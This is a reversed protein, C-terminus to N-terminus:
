HLGKEIKNAVVKKVFQPVTTCDTNDIIFQSYAAGPSEIAWQYINELKSQRELTDDITQSVVSPEKLVVELQEIVQKAIEDNYKKLEDGNLSEYIQWPSGNKINDLMAGYLAMGNMKLVKTRPYYSAMLDFPADHADEGAPRFDTRLLVCPIDLFKAHMYECLTGEQMNTGNFNFIALDCEMLEKLDGNRIISGRNDQQVQSEKDQPLRPVFRGNAVSKISQALIVNGILEM